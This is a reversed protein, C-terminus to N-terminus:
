KKGETEGASKSIEGASQFPSSPMLNMAREKRNLERYREQDEEPLARIYKEIDVGHESHNAFNM